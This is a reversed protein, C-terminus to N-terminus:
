RAPRAGGPPRRRAGSTRRGPPASSRPATARRPPRAREADAALERRALLDVQQDDAAPGRTEARRDVAGGLPEVREDDLAGREAPLGARRAPDLVVEAERGADGAGLERAAGDGLRALEARPRRRGVPRHRELGAVPAVDHPELVVVLDGRAGHHERGAGLVPPERDVTEGVVLPQADEVGGPRRLRLEAAGRADADHAAAVRGALGGDPERAAAREHRQQVAARIQALRHRVVEHALELAVADRHAVAALDRRQVAVSPCSSATVSSSRRARQREREQEEEEARPRAGLPEAVGDCRSSFPKM